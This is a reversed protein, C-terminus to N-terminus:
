SEGRTKAIAVNLLDVITTQEDVWAPPGDAALLADRAAECAALLATAALVLDANAEAEDEREEEDAGCKITAIHRGDPGYLDCWDASDRLATEARWPPPTHKATM